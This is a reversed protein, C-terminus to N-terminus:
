TSAQLISLLRNPLLLLFFCLCFGTLGQLVWYFWIFSPLVLYFGTCGLLFRSFSSLLRYFRYFVIRYCYCYFFVFAFGPLVRYPASRPLPWRDANKKRRKEKTKKQADPAGIEDPPAGSGCRQGCGCPLPRWLKTMESSEVQFFSPLVLYCGKLARQKMPM